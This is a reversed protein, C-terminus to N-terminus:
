FKCHYNLTIGSQGCIVRNDFSIFVLRPLPAQMPFNIIFNIPNQQLIDQITENRSRQLELLGGYQQTFDFNLPNLNCNYKNLSHKYIVTPLRGRLSFTALLSVAPRDLPPSPVTLLGYQYFDNRTKYQFIRPCPSQLLSSILFPNVNVIFLMSFVFFYMTFCLLDITRNLAKFVVSEFNDRDLRSLVYKVHNCICLGLTLRTYNTFQQRLLISQPKRNLLKQVVLTKVELIFHFLSSWQNM